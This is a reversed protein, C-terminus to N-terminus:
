WSRGLRAGVRQSEHREQLSDAHRVAVKVGQPVGKGGLADFATDIHFREALQESMRADLDRQVPIDVRIHLEFAPLKFLEIRAESLPRFYPRFGRLVLASVSIEPPKEQTSIIYSLITIPM